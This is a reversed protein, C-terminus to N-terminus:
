VTFTTDGVNITASLETWTQTVPTGHMSFKCNHCTIGKNGFMPLQAGYYSGYLIFTLKHQYPKEETGAQFVGGNVTLM